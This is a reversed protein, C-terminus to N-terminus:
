NLRFAVSVSPSTYIYTNITQIHESNNFLSSHKLESKQMCKYSKSCSLLNLYKARLEWEECKRYIIFLDRMQAIRLMNRVM